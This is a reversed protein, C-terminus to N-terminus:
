WSFHRGIEDPKHADSGALVALRDMAKKLSPDVDDYAGPDCLEAAFICRLSKELDPTLSIAHELLGQRGDIHAPIAIGGANQIEKVTATFSTTTSTTRDDGHGSTIGCAGLVGTVKSGDHKEPDFVALLHVRGTSDSITIETGPFVVLPRFWKPRPSAESLQEYAQKLRDIWAGSNHDAVVVCDLGAQMAKRLWLEESTTQRIGEDGRGYDHSAPSHVHFDFKWWKSGPYSWDTSM